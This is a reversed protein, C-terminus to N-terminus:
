QGVPLEWAPSVGAAVVLKRCHDDLVAKRWRAPRVFGSVLLHCVLLEDMSHGERRAMNRLDNFVQGTTTDRGQPPSM